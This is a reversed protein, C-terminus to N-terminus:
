RANSAGSKEIETKLIELLERYVSATDSLSREYVGGREFRGTMRYEGFQPYSHIAGTWAERGIEPATFLDISWYSNRRRVVDRLDRDRGEISPYGWSITATDGGRVVALPVPRYYQKDVPSLREAFRWVYEQWGAVAFSEISDREDLLAYIRVPLYENQIIAENTDLSRFDRAHYERVRRGAVMREGKIDVTQHVITRPTRCGPLGIQLLLAGFMLFYKLRRLEHFVKPLTRSGTHPKPM